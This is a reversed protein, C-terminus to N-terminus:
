LPLNLADAVTPWLFLWMACLAKLGLAWYLLRAM